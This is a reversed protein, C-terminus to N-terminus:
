GNGHLVDTGDPKCYPNSDGCTGCCYGKIVPWGCKQCPYHTIIEALHEFYEKRSKPGKPYKRVERTEVPRMDKAM